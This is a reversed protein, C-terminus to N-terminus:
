RRTRKSIYNYDAEKQEIQVITRNEEHIIKDRLKEFMKKEKYVEIMESKKLELEATLHFVVNKQEEIKKNLYSHYDYLLSIENVDLLGRENGSNFGADAKSLTEELLELKDRELNLTDNKQRVEAELQDQTFGKLELVKSLTQKRTM